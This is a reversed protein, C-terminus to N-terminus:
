TLVFSPLTLCTSTKWIPLTLVEMMPLGRRRGAVSAGGGVVGQVTFLGTDDGFVRHLSEYTAEMEYVGLYVTHQWVRRTGNLPKPPALTVWPLPAGSPEPSWEIVRRDVPRTSRLTLKPVQQPSFLELMWWFLLIRQQEDVERPEGM